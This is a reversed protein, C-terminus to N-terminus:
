CGNHSVVEKKALIKYSEELLRKQEQLINFLVDPIDTGKTNYVEMIEVIKKLNEFIRIIFQKLYDEELSATGPSGSSKLLDFYKEAM